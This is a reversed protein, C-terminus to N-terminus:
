SLEILHTGSGGGDDNDENGNLLCFGFVSVRFIRLLLTMLFAFQTKSICIEHFHPSQILPASSPILLAFLFSNCRM